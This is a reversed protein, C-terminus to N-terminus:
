SVFRHFSRLDAKTDFLLFLLFVCDSISICAGDSKLFRFSFFFSLEHIYFVM